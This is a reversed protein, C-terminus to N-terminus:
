CDCSRGCSGSACGLGAADRKSLMTKNITENVANLLEQFKHQAESFSKILPNQLMKSEIQELQKIDEATLSIGSQQKQRQQQQLLQFEMLLKQAESDKLMASEARQVEKFEESEAIKRGLELAQEFVEQSM